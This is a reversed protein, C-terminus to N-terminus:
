SKQTCFEGKNRVSFFTVEKIKLSKKAENGSNEMSQLKGSKGVRWPLGAKSRGGPYGRSACSIENVM